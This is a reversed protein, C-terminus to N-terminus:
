HLKAEKMRKLTKEFNIANSYDDERIDLCINIDTMYKQILGLTLDFYNDDEENNDRFAVGHEGNYLGKNIINAFHIEKTFKAYDKFYEEYTKDSKYGYILELLRSSAMAHVTDLLSYIRDGCTSKRRLEKVVEILESSKLDNNYIGNECIMSPNEVFLETYEFERLLREIKSFAYDMVGLKQMKELGIGNHIVVGINRNAKKGIENAIRFAERLNKLSFNDSDELNVTRDFKKDLMSHVSYIKDAYVTFDENTNKNLLQVEILDAGKKLKDIVAVGSDAKAIYKM